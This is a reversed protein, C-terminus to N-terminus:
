NAFAEEVKRSLISFDDAGGRHIIVGDPDILITTPFKGVGFAFTLFNAKVQMLEYVNPWNMEYKNIYNPIKRISKEELEFAVSVIKLDPFRKNIAALKPLMAVCPECWTGWFDLLLYKGAYAASSVTRGDLDKTSFQPATNGENVGVEKSEDVNRPRSIRLDITNKTNTIFTPVLQTGNVVCSATHKLFNDTGGISNKGFVEADIIKYQYVYETNKIDNLVVVRYDKDDIRFMGSSYLNLGITMGYKAHLLAKSKLKSKHLPSLEPQVYLKYGTKTGKKSLVVPQSALYVPKKLEKEKFRYQYNNSFDRDRDTDLICVREKRSINGYLVFLTDKNITVYSILSKKKDLNKPIGKFERKKAAYPKSKIEHAVVETNVKLPIQVIKSKQGFM